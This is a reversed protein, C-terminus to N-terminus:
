RKKETTDDSAARLRQMRRGSKSIHTAKAAALFNELGTPKVIPGEPASKRHRLTLFAHALEAASAKGLIRMDSGSVFRSLATCAAEGLAAKGLTGGELLVGANREKQASDFDESLITLSRQM